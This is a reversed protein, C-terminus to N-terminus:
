DLAWAIQYGSAIRTADADLRREVLASKGTMHGTKIDDVLVVSGPRLKPWAAVLEALQHQQSNPKDADLSDLYLLDIPGPFRSWCWRRSVTVTGTAPRECADRRSLM